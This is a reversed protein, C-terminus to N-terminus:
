RCKLETPEEGVDKREVGTRRERVVRTEKVESRQRSLEAVKVEKRDLRERHAPLFQVEGATVVICQRHRVRM